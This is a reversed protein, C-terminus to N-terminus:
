SAVDRTLTGGSFHYKVSLHTFAIINQLRLAGERLLLLEHGLRDVVPKEDTSKIIDEEKVKVAIYADNMKYDKARIMAQIDAENRYVPRSLTHAILSNVVAGWKQLNSGEAQYLSIYVTALKSNEIALNQDKKKSEGGEDMFEALGMENQFRDRVDRLKKGIGKFFLSNEWPGKEIAENLAKLVELNAKTEEDM